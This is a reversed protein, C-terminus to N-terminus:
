AKRAPAPCCCNKRDASKAVAGGPSIITRGTRTSRALRWLRGFLGSAPRYESAISPRTPRAFRGARPGLERLVRVPISLGNAYCRSRGELLVDRRLILEGDETDIGMDNLLKLAPHQLYLEFIAEVTCKKEGTRIVDPSARMGLILGLAGVLISKGAGTEGTIINLGKGFAVEM